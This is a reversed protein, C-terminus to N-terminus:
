SGEPGPFGDQNHPVVGEEEDLADDEEDWDGAPVDEAFDYAPDADTGPDPQDEPWDSTNM